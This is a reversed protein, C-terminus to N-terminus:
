HVRFGSIWAWDATRETNNLITVTKLPMEDVTTIFRLERNVDRSPELPIGADSVASVDSEEEIFDDTICHSLFHTPDGHSSRELDIIFARDGHFHGDDDDASVISGPIFMMKM